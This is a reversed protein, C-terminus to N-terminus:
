RETSPSRRVPFLSMAKHACVAELVKHYDQTIAVNQLISASQALFEGGVDIGGGHADGSQAQAFGQTVVSNIVAVLRRRASPAVPRISSRRRKREAWWVPASSSGGTAYIAGGRAVNTSGLTVAACNTVESYQLAVLGASAICGGRADSANAATQYKAGHTISLHDLTLYNDGLHVFVESQDGADITM